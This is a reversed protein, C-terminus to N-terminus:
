TTTGIRAAVATRDDGPRIGLGGYLIGIVQKDLESYATTVSFESYFVSDVYKPSDAMLGTSQTLEERILHCRHIESVDTTSILITSRTISGASDWTVWFFGYNLPRYNPEISKFQSEPAFHITTDAPGQVIQLQMERSIANFDAVVNRLCRESATSYQGKVQITVSRRNWKRVVATQQGFEVGLAVVYFYSLATAGVRPKGGAPPSATPAPTRSPSPTVQAPSVTPAGTGAVPSTQNWQAGPAGPARNTGCGLLAAVLMAALAASPVLRWRAPRGSSVTM